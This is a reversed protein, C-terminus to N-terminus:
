QKKFVGDEVLGLYHSEADPNRERFPASVSARYGDESSYFSAMSLREQKSIEIALAALSDATLHRGDWLLVHGQEGGKWYPNRKLVKYAPVDSLAPAEATERVQEQQCSFALTLLLLFPLRRRM